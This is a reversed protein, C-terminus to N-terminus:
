DPISRTNIIQHKPPKVIITICSLQRFRISRMTLGFAVNVRRFDSGFHPIANRTKQTRTTNNAHITKGNVCRNRLGCYALLKASILSSPDILAVDITNTATLPIIRPTRQATTNLVINVTTDRPKLIFSASLNLCKKAAQHCEIKILGNTNKTLIAKRGTKLLTSSILVTTSILITGPMCM